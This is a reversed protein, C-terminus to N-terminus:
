RMYPHYDRYQLHQSPSMGAPSPQPVVHNRRDASSRRRLMVTVGVAIAGLLISAIWARVYIYLFRDTDLSTLGLVSGVSTASIGHILLIYMNALAVMMPAIGVLYTFATPRFPRSGMYLSVAAITATVVMLIIGVILPAGRYESSIAVTMWLNVTRESLEAGRLGYRLATALQHLMGVLVFLNVALGLTVPWPRPDPTHQSMVTTAIAAGGTALLCMIPLPTNIISNNFILVDILLPQLVAAAMVASPRNEYIARIPLFVLLLWWPGLNIIIYFILEIVFQASFGQDTHFAPHRSADIFAWIIMTGCAILTTILAIIRDRRWPTSTFAAAQRVSGPPQPQTFRQPAAPAPGPSPAPIYRPFSATPGTSYPDAGTSDTAIRNAPQGVSSLHQAM